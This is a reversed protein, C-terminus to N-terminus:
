GPSAMSPMANPEMLLLCPWFKAGTRQDFSVERGCMGSKDSDMSLGDFASSSRLIIQNCYAFELVENLPVFSFAFSRQSICGLFIPWSLQELVNASYFKPFVWHCLNFLLNILNCCLNIIVSLVNCDCYAMVCVANM